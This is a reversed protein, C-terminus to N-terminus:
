KKVAEWPFEQSGYNVDTFVGTIKNGSIRGSYKQFNPNNAWPRTFYLEGTTPNYTLNTIDEWKNGIDFFIRGSKMDDSFELMGKYSNASLDYKGAISVSNESQTVELKIMAPLDTADFANEVETVNIKNVTGTGATKSVSVHEGENLIVKNNINDKVYVTGSLLNVETNGTNDVTVIFKTGMVGLCSSPTIVQFEKGQKGIHFLLEGVEIKLMDSGYLEVISNSKIIFVSGDPYTLNIRTNDSSQIKDGLDIKMGSIGDVWENSQYKNIKFSGRTLNLKARGSTKIEGSIRGSLNGNEDSIVFNGIVASEETSASFEGSMSFSFPLKSDEKGNEYTTIFGTGTASFKDKDATGNGSGDVHAYNTAETRPDTMKFDLSVQAQGQRVNLLSNEGSYTYGGQEFKVSLDYSVDNTLQASLENVLFFCFLMIIYKM